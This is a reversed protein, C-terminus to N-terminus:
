RMKGADKLESQVARESTMQKSIVTILWMKTL